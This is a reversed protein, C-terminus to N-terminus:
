TYLDPRLDQRRIAGDTLKEIRVAVDPPIKNRGKVWSNVTSRQVGLKRALAAQSGIFHVACLIANQM